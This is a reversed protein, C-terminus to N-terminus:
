LAVQGNVRLHDGNCFSGKFNEFFKRVFNNFFKVDLFIHKNEDHTRDVKCLILLLHDLVLSIGQNVIFSSNLAVHLTRLCFLKVHFNFIVDGDFYIAIVGVSNHLFFSTVFVGSYHCKICM